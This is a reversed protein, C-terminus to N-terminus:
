NDFKFDNFNSRNMESVRYEILEFESKHCETEDNLNVTEEDWDDEDYKNEFIYELEGKTFLYVDDDLEYGDPYENLYLEEETHYLAYRKM